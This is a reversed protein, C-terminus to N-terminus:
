EDVWEQLEGHHWRNRYRRRTGNQFRHTETWESPKADLKVDHEMFDPFLEIIALCQLAQVIEEETRKGFDFVVITPSKMLPFRRENLFDRDCSLLIRGQRKAEALQNEDPHGRKGADGATVVNLGVDRIIEVAQPPFDEDAYFRPKKKIQREYDEIEKEERKSLEDNPLDSLYVWPM